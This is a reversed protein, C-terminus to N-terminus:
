LIFYLSDFSPIWQFIFDVTAISKLFSNSYGDADYCNGFKGETSLVATSIEIDAGGLLDLTNGDLQYKYLLSGDGFPDTSNVLGGSVKASCGLGMSGFM